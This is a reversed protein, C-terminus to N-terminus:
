LLAFVHPIFYAWGKGYRRQQRDPQGGVKIRDCGLAPDAAGGSQSECSLLPDSTPLGLVGSRDHLPRPRTVAGTRPLVKASTTLDIPSAACNSILPSPM